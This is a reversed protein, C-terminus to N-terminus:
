GEKQEVTCAVGDGGVTAAVWINQTDHIKYMIAENAILPYSDNANQAAARTNGVQIIGTNAPLAKIVFEMNYPVLKSPLQYGVGAAGCTTVWSVMTKPNKLSTAGSGILANIAAALDGMASQLAALQSLATSFDLDVNESHELLALLAQMTAADPTVLQSGSPPQPEAGARGTSLLVAALAAATIGLGAIVGRNKGEAKEGAM